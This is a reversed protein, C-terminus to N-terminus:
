GATQWEDFEIDFEWNAQALADELSDHYTDTIENGSSDL